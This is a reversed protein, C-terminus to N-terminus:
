NQLNFYGEEKLEGCMVWLVRENLLEQSCDDLDDWAGFEQLYKRAMDAPVIFNLQKLWHQVDNTCDGAHTCDNICDQSIKQKLNGYSDFWFNWLINYYNEENEFIQLEYGSEQIIDEFIPIWRQGVEALLDYEMPCNEGILEEANYKFIARDTSLEIEVTCGSKEGIIRTNM